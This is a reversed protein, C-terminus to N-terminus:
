QCALCEDYDKVEVEIQKLNITNDAEVGGAFGARQMSKSRCYYLSKIGLEWARYHMMLLDWKEIDAPLFLNLSQAQDIYPTRDGALELLWRQDIEFATRFTAKEDPTLFDLHQVSGGRELITSWVKDSNKAKEELLKELHPNKVTFSGSLTKHTYINAPIPEICASTGGCIISISATPAIAMKCSFREMVGMDEADPCAGRESALLMSAEDAQTRIHRFIKLNWSKAMASEFPISRAQLFSHFGMVGLGVSRERMAAYKAREMEDPARAIYDSLVNDLFRMVDEIFLKDKSWEDWTELNLSSLCCVATRDKNYQDVGTPLTIESCLNSTTVKLGVDRQHKPMTNNVHDIFIIYPEGTALRTEVLKQFLARADVEGRKSGDKPSVLDFPLGDRVAEMFADTVLVGHHLNLAKRNFDGSPKRIELFEEIEPHSIDLYCAASGRRLSGQSIALTLSDMVRVFPVIGSTKGNLGVPEGIGRVHGWYTGIGGGKSALWVNENWTGVIGELSDSVSNLYCSIPLGRGTGGNSLVPTAPMFWLRSIYDYLRQAHADDGDDAYAAAVRAFLDQPREGPLLYRDELTQRGFDTLLADRSHDIEVAHAAAGRPRATAAVDDGDLTATDVGSFDM